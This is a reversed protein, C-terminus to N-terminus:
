SMVLTCNRCGPYRRMRSRDAILRERERKRRVRFKDLHAKGQEIWLRHCTTLTGQGSHHCTCATSPVRLSEEEREEILAAIVSRVPSSSFFLFSFFLISPLWTFVTALWNILSLSSSFSLLSHWHCDGTACMMFTVQTLTRSFGRRRCHTSSFLFFCLRQPSVIWFCYHGATTISSFFLSLFFSFTENDIPHLNWHTHLTYQHKRSSDVSNHARAHFLFLSFLFASLSKSPWHLHQYNM